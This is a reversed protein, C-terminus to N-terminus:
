SAALAIMLAGSGIDILPLLDEKHLLQTMAALVLKRPEKVANIV